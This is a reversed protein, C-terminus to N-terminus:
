KSFLDNLDDIVASRYGDFEDKQRQYTQNEQRRLICLKQNDLPHVSKLERPDIQFHVKAFVAVKM